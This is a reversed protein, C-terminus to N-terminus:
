QFLRAHEQIMPDEPALRRCEEWHARAEAQRGVWFLGWYMFTRPLYSYNADSEAFASTRPITLAEAAYAVSAEFEGRHSALAALRILPERRTPDVAFARKYSEDARGPKGTAEFCQGALCLSESREASWAQENAAHELLVPIASRYRGQYHLERGLYHTWRPNDPHELADLALGYLYNREKTTDKHHQVLLATESCQVTPKREPSTPTLPYLAEHVRGRWQDLTRDYFRMVRLRNTGLRLTYEFRSAERARLRDNLFDIDFALLEDSADLQLVHDHRALEGALQRAAGFDFMPRGDGLVLPSEDAAAFRHNIADAQEPTLTTIFRSGVEVVHCGHARARVLTEDTSGTDVVLVEGGREQFGTLGALLRPLARAENKAIVVVSFYPATSLVNTM